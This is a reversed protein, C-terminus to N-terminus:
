GGAATYNKISKKWFFRIFFFIGAIWAILIFLNWMCENFSVTGSLIKYPFYVYYKFPLYELFSKLSSPLLDIPIILREGKIFFIVWPNEMWFGLAGLLYDFMFNWFFSLLIFIFFFFISMVSISFGTSAGHLYYFLLTGLIGYLFLIVPLRSFKIGCIQAFQYYFYSFPRLLYISLQGLRIDESVRDAISSTDIINFVTNAIFIYLLMSALTYNEIRNNFLYISRWLFILITTAFINILCSFLYNYRYIFTNQLSIKLTKLYKRM